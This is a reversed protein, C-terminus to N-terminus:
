YGLCIFNGSDGVDYESNTTQRDRNRATTTLSVVRVTRVDIRYHLSSDHSGRHSNPSLIKDLRVLRPLKKEVPAQKYKGFMRQATELAFFTPRCYNINLHLVENSRYITFHVGTDYNEYSLKGDEGENEISINPQTEAWITLANMTPAPKGNRSIFELDFSM